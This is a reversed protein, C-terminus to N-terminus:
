ASLSWPLHIQIQIGSWGSELQTIDDLYVPYAETEEETQPTIFTLKFPSFSTM